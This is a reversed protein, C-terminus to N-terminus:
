PKQAYQPLAKEYIVYGVVLRNGYNVLSEELCITQGQAKKEIFYSALELKVETGPPGYWVNYRNDKWAEGSLLFCSKLPPLFIYELTINEGPQLLDNLVVRNDVVQYETAELVVKVTPAAATAISVKVVNNSPPYDLAFVEIPSVFGKYAVSISRNGQDDTPVRGAYQVTGAAANLTCPFEASTPTVVIQGFSNISATVNTGPLYCLYSGAGTAAPAALNFSKVTQAYDYFSMLYDGVPLPASFTYRLTKGGNLATLVASGPNVGAPVSTFLVTDAFIVNASTIELVTVPEVHNFYNVSITVPSAGPELQPLFDTDRLYLDDSNHRCKVAADLGTFTSANVCDIPGGGSWVLQVTGNEPLPAFINDYSTRRYNNQKHYVATVNGSLAPSLVLVYTDRITMVSPNLVTELPQHLALSYRTDPATFVDPAQTLAIRSASTSKVASTFRTLWTLSESEQCLDGVWSASATGALAPDLNRESVFSMEAFQSNLKLTENGAPVEIDDANGCVALNSSQRYYVGVLQMHKRIHATVNTNTSQLFSHHDNQGVARSCASSENNNRDKCNPADSILMYAHVANDRDSNRYDYALRNLSRISREDGNSGEAFIANLAVDIAAKAQAITQTGRNIQYRDYNGSVGELGGLYLRWDTDHLDEVLKYVARRAREISVQTFSESDDVTVFLDVPKGSHDIFHPQDSRLPATKQFNKTQATRSLITRSTTRAAGLNQVSDQKKLPNATNELSEVVPFSESMSFTDITVTQGDNTKIVSTFRGEDENEGVTPDPVVPEKVTEKPTNIEPTKTDTVAPEANEGVGAEVVSVNDIANAESGSRKETVEEQFSPSQGCGLVLIFLPVLRIGVSRWFERVM